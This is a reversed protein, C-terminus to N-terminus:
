ALTPRGAPSILLVRIGELSLVAKKVRSRQRVGGPLAQV